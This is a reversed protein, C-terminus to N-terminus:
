RWNNLDVLDAPRTTTVVRYPGCRLVAAVVPALADPDATEAALLELAERWCDHCFDGSVADLCGYLELHHDGCQHCIPM